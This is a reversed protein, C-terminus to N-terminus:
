RTKLRNQMHEFMKENMDDVMGKDEPVKFHKRLEEHSKGDPNFNMETNKQLKKWAEYEEERWNTPKESGKQFFAPKASEIQQDEIM